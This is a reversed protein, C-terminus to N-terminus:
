LDPAVSSSRRRALDRLRARGAVLEGHRRADSAEPRNSANRAIRAAVTRITSCQFLDLISVGEPAIENVKAHVRAILLSSGGIDFFNDDAGVQDIQLVDKWIAAIRAELDGDPPVYPVEIPRTERLLSLRRRDVKGAPTVPFADVFVFAAPVMYDPLREKLFDKLDAATRSPSDLVVHAVM